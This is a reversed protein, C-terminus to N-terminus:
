GATPRRGLFAGHIAHALAEPGLDDTTLTLEALSQYLPTRQALLEVIEDLGGQSTLNPRRQQTSRDGNLRREIKMPKATLWVVYGLRLLELNAPRGVIGGGTAVVLREQNAITELSQQEFDRFATEGSSDFIQKISCGAEREIEGDLDVWAWDSGLRSSVLPAVTSKGVGRYGILYINQGSIAM